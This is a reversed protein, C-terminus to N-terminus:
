SASRKQLFAKTLVDCAAPTVKPTRLTEIIVADGTGPAAPRLALAVTTHDRRAACHSSALDAARVLNIEHADLDQKLSRNNRRAIVPGNRAELKERVKQPLLLVIRPTWQEGNRCPITLRELSGIRNERCQM